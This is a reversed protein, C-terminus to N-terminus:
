FVCLAHGAKNRFEPYNEKVNTLTASFLRQVLAGLFLCGTRVSVTHTGPSVEPGSPM